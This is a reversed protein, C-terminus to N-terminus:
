GAGLAFDRVLTHVAGGSHLESAYLGFATVRFPPAGFDRHRQLFHKVTTPAAGARLRAVIVHPHFTRLDVPLGTALLLDDLRQRLQFLRPHGRGVGAWLVKPAGRPPFVGVGVVPLIFPQVVGAVRAALADSLREIVAEDVVEGIFRLTLHLQAPPVWCWGAHAEEERWRGLGERHVPPLEVAIFYRRGM